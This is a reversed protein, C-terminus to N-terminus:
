YTRFETAQLLTWLLDEVDSTTDAAATDPFLQWEHDRPRRNLVALFAAEVREGHSALNSIGAVATGRTLSAAVIEGNMSMLAEASPSMPVRARERLHAVREGIQAYDQRLSQLRMEEPSLEAKPQSPRPVKSQDTQESRPDWPVAGAVREEHERNLLSAVDAALAYVRQEEGTVRVVSDLWQDGNLQRPPMAHWTESIGSDSGHGLQFMQSLVITRMLWKLDYDHEAFGQAIVDLLEEHRVSNRPSFGDFSDVFGLGTLELWLRNVAARAFLKNGPDVIWSVFQSRRTEQKGDADVITDGGLPTPMIVQTEDGGPIKVDGEEAQVWARVDGWAGDIAADGGPLTSVSTPPRLRLAFRDYYEDATGKPMRIKARAFFAAMGWYSEQKWEDVYPDDHCQACAINTGLFMRSAADAVENPETDFYLAFNAWGDQSVDGDTALLDKAIEAWSRNEAMAQRGYYYLTVLNTSQGKVERIQTVWDRFRFGWYDAYRSRSLLEDVKRSRRDPSEDSLFARVEDSTPAIGNLALSSRRLFTADDIRPAPNVSERAWLVSLYDNVQDAAHDTHGPPLGDHPRRAPAVDAKGRPGGWAVSDTVLFCLVVVLTIQPITRM